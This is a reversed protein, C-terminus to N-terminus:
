RFAGEIVFSNTSRSDAGRRLTQQTAETRAALAGLTTKLEISGLACRQIAMRFSSNALSNSLTNLSNLANTSGQAVGSLHVTWLENTRQLSLQTTTLEDPMIQGLYAFLWVPAPPLKTERLIRSTEQMREMDAVLKLMDTRQINLESIRGDLVAVEKLQGSRLFECLGAIGIASLLLLVVFSATLTLFRAQQPARRLGESILNGDEKAAITAGQEAWYYPSFEVPSVKAPVKIQQQLSPLQAEVNQGFLWVSNVRVGLQQEAFAISRALDMTVRDAGNSWTHSLVRGLCVRGDKRGVVITTSRGSEAALLAVEDKQLPLSKLHGILVATTPLLRVLELGAERSSHLLHDRVPRPCLHLLVAGANKTQLAPQSSWVADAPFAKVRQAQRELLRSLTGGRVEPVEVLQDSLRPDSIVITLQKADSETKAVADRLVAALGAFDAIAEPGDYAKQAKGRLMGVGSVKGNLISLSLFDSKM